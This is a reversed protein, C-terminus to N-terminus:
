PTAGEPAAGNELHIQVFRLEVDRAFGDVGPRGTDNPVVHFVGPRQGATDDRALFAALLEEHGTSLGLANMHERLNLDRHRSSRLQWPSFDPLHGQGSWRWLEGPQLSPLASCQGIPACFIGRPSPATSTNLVWDHGVRLSPVDHVVRQQTALLTDWLGGRVGDLTVRQQGLRTLPPTAGSERSLNVTGGEGPDIDFTRPRTLYYGVHRTRIGSTQGSAVETIELARYTMRVGKSAYATVAMLVICALAILPTTVLARVPTGKKELYRFNLPGVAFTYLLLLFAVFLLSVRFSTNPDLARRLARTTEAHQGLFEAPAAAGNLAGEFAGVAFTAEPGPEPANLDVRAIQVLGFGRRVSAGYPDVQVNPPARAVVYLGTQEEATLTLEGFFRRVVPSRFDARSEPSILLGGGGVIWEEMARQQAASMRELLPVSAIVAGTRQWAAGVDPLVPDGTQTDLPVASVESASGSSRVSPSRLQGLLRPPDLLLRLARTDPTDGPYHETTFTGAAGTFRAQLDRGDDNNYIVTHVTRTEGPPVDVEVETRTGSSRWGRATIQVVGHQPQTTANTVSVQVPNFARFRITDDYGARLELLIPSVQATAIGGPWMAALLLACIWARARGLATLVAHPPLSLTRM